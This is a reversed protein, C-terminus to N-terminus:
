IVEVVIAEEILREFAPGRLLRDIDADTLKDGLETIVDLLLPLWPAVAFGLRMVHTRYADCLAAASSVM